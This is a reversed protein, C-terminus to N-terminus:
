VPVRESKEKAGIQSAMKEMETKVSMDIFNSGFTITFGAVLSPDIVNKIRVNKAGTMSQVAKAIEAFQREEPKVVTTVIALVTDTLAFYTEEFESIVNKVIDMRQKDVLLNLFNLTYPQFKADDALAKIISKKKETEAVPNALFSYLDNMTLLQSFKELDNYVETLKNKTNATEALAEAYSKAASAQMLIRNRNRYGKRRTTFVSQFKISNTTVSFPKFTASLSNARAQVPLMSHSRQLHFARPCQQLAAM